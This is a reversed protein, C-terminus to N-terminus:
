RCPKRWMTRIAVVLGGLCIAGATLTPGGFTPVAARPETAGWTEDAPYDDPSLLAFHALEAAHGPERGPARPPRPTVADLAPATSPATPRLSCRMSASVCEASVALKAGIGASM